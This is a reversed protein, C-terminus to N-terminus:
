FQFYIFEGSEGQVLKVTLLLFILGSSIGVLKPLVTQLNIKYCNTSCMRELRSSWENKTELIQSTNPLGWVLLLLSLIWIVQWGGGFTTTAGFQVGLKVLIIALYGLPAEYQSPLVIGNLGALSQYISVATEFSDARFPVWALTVLLFTCLCGSCYLLWSLLKSNNTVLKVKRNLNTAQWAHTISLLAGHILGWFVFTWSSGHWLGGLVMVLFLNLQRRLRGKRNGGLPFYLYNRLFNSLSIHWRRWFEVVNHAKYPSAFNIPIRIGFLRALGIAMDSYGSFDFYIQLSFCLLGVWSDLFSLAAGNEAAFFFPDAWRGMQDAFIVKKLLGITFITSGLALDNWGSKCNEVLNNFQPIMDKHHVIPGALLQPFFTVFLAYKLFSEPVADREFVDVLFAIQQFTFFSIAIPLLIEFVYSQQSFLFGYTESFFNAYKFFALISLNVFIGFALLTKGVISKSPQRSIIKGFYFNFIISSCVLLVYIPEWLGYFVLSGLVLFGINLNLCQYRKLFLFVALITPMFILLFEPSNFLM